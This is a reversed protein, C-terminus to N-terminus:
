INPLCLVGKWTTCTVTHTHTNTHRGGVRKESNTTNKQRQGGMPVPLMTKPGDTRQQTRAHM